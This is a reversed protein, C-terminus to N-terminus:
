YTFRMKQSYGLKDLNPHCALQVMPPPGCLLLLMDDGPAPLHEQIMDASVFGKSYAWDARPSSLIVSWTWAPLPTCHPAPTPRHYDLLAGEPPHDLTFWLKFHNPHRAQLEELDERLIIDKETQNAFLLFCQTPDEPDKLIAQILQLMPTIGTGGAIMGLKRAVRPEPPSKKNPQISFMGKGAYTLLGSPGRFEVVDGTKLSDLYQSMKGGEPFRPHVGKLYVKIVLDVYGQDEDSTIPTYPRIVLSGDIRASLYVHKGVPLGLVHHATPLAFRFRKTNHNVTTKDLLRLLYKENPDLLTIRPRRSRRVLYSGLALGLLTLLGVGLSALLVPSPQLGMM